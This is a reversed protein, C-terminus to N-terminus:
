FQHISLFLRKVLLKNINTQCQGSDQYNNNTLSMEPAREEEMMLSSAHGEEIM